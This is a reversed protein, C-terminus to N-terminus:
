RQKRQPGSGLIEPERSARDLERQETTRSAFPNPAGRLRAAAQARVQALAAERAAGRPVPKSGERAEAEKPISRM